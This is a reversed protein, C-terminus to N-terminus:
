GILDIGSPLEHFAFGAQLRHELLMPLADTFYCVTAALNLQSGATPCCGPERAAGAIASRLAALWRLCCHPHGLSVSSFGVREVLEPRNNRVNGVDASVEWAEIEGAYPKTLAATQDPTGGCGIM